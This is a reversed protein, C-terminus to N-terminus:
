GKVSGVMIGKVFYKQLMPFLLFVPIMGVVAIAMRVTEQPIQMGLSAASMGSNPNNSLYEINKMINNLLQQISFLKNDTIYYLGNTWDNWYALGQFMAITAVVPKSLPMYIKFFTTFEGAGDIKASEGLESPISNQYYSRIMIVNYAGMLLGPILLAWITNKIHLYRTYWIYTPILGGGFLMTFFLYFSFFNRGPLDRKSIAYGYLLSIMVGTCTGVVTVFITIFYARFIQNRETWIYKYAELSFKSPFLTYGHLVIAENDTFSASILLLFPFIMIVSILIMALNIGIQYRKENKSIM